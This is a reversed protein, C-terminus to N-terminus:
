LFYMQFIFVYRSGTHRRSSGQSNSANCGLNRWKDKLDVNSRNILCHAFQHDNLIDKWKGTGYKYVGASLAAEEESTWRKKAKGM